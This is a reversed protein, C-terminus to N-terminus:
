EGIKFGDSAKTIEMEHMPPDIDDSESALYNLEEYLGDSFLSEALKLQLAATYFDGREILGAIPNCHAQYKEFKREFEDTKEEFEDKTM